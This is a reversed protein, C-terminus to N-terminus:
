IVQKSRKKQFKKYIIQAIYQLVKIIVYVYISERLISYLDSRVSFLLLCLIYYNMTISVINNEKLSRKLKYLLWVLGMGYLFMVIYAGVGFNFYVEAIFSSGIGSYRNIFSHFVLDTNVSNIVDSEWLFNPLVYLLSYLYSKGGLFQIYTPCHTIVNAVVVITMGFESLLSYVLNNDKFNELISVVIEGLTDYSSFSSRVAGVGSLVIALLLILPIMKISQWRSFKSYYENKVLLLICLFLTAKLRSGSLYYVGVYLLILVSFVKLLRSNKYAIIVYIFAAIAFSALIRIIKDLVNGFIVVEYGLLDSYDNETIMLAKYIGIMMAPIYTVIFFLLATMRNVFINDSAINSKKKATRNSRYFLLVASHLILLCRLVFLATYNTDEASFTSTISMWRYIYEETLFYLLYQGYYFVFCSGFFITYFNILSPEIRYWSFFVFVFTSVTIAFVVNYNQPTPMAFLMILLIVCAFFYICNKKGIKM